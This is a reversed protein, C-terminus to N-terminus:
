RIGWPKSKSAHASSKALILDDVNESFAMCNTELNGQYDVFHLRMQSSNSHNALPFRASDNFCLHLTDFPLLVM